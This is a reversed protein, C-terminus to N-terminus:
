KSVPINKSLTEKLVKGDEALIIAYGLAKEASPDNLSAGFLRVQWVPLGGYGRELEFQVSAIILDEVAPLALTIRLADDSDMKLKEFDLPKQSQPTLFGLIRAPEHIRAMQGEEFQVEVAKYRAKPDYYTIRWDQPASDISTQASVIQVVKDKSRESVHTNGQRALQLATRPKPVALTSVRLPQVPSPAPAPSRVAVFTASGKSLVAATPPTKVIIPSPSAESPALSVATNTVAPVPAPLLGKTPRESPAPSSTSSVTRLDKAAAALVMVKPSPQLPRVATAEPLTREPPPQVHPLTNRAEIKSHPHSFMRWAVLAVLAAGAGVCWSQRKTMIRKGHSAQVLRGLPRQGSSLWEAVEAARQPRQSENKTLCAMIVEEVHGPISNKLNLERLREQLPRVAVNRVQHPLDGAFFPPKGTLLEYLTAGLGYIDDTVKPLGGELQQPSMYLLTGTTQTISSRSMTDTIARAIGFDALKLQHTQQLMVNAPKLDRHIIGQAHAYDLADCLQPVLPELFAWSLVREAQQVRVTGLHSGDVYEMSIFADEGEPEYLDHIRVINPHTLKQSRATERRLDDLAVPDCRIGPPLFKLAVECQLREDQALWVIGMGGRGLMRRLSYRGGGVKTSAAAQLDVVGTAYIDFPIAEKVMDPFM